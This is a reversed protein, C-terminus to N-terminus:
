SALQRGFAQAKEVVSSDNVLEGAEATTDPFLCSAFSCGIMLSPNRLQSELVELNDKMPGGATAILALTKGGMVTRIGDESFKCLSYMRDVFMKLQATYSWWYLPTALVVVDYEALTAVKRALEDGIACEFVETQQCKHCGICGPVKFDLGIADIEAVDAGAQRAAQMTLATVARTNGHKRPGGHVFVIRKSM